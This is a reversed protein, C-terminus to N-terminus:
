VVSTLAVGFFVKALPWGDTDETVEGGQEAAIIQARVLREEYTGGKPRYVVSGPHVFASVPGIADEMPIRDYQARRTVPGVINLM